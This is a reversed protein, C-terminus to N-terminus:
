ILLLTLTLLLLLHLRVNSIVLSLVSATWLVVCVAAPSPAIDQQGAVVLCLQQM